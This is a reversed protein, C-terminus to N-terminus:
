WRASSRWHGRPGVRPAELRSRRWRAGPLVGSMAGATAPEVPEVVMWVLVAWKREASMMPVVSMQAVVFLRLRVAPDNKSWSRALEAALTTTRPGLTVRARNPRSGLAASFWVTWILWASKWTM